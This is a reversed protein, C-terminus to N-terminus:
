IRLTKRWRVFCRGGRLDGRVRAARQADESTSRPPEGLRGGGGALLARGRGWTDWLVEGAGEGPMRDLM